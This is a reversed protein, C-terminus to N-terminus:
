YQWYVRRTLVKNQGTGSWRGWVYVTMPSAGTYGCFAAYAGDSTHSLVRYSDMAEGSRVLAVEQPVTANYSLQASVLFVSNAPIDVSVGTYELSATVQKYEDTSIIVPRFLKLISLAM